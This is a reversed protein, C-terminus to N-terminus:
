GINTAVPKGLRSLFIGLHINEEGQIFSLFIAYLKRNCTKKAPENLQVSLNM